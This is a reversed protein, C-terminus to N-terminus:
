RPLDRNSWWLARSLGRLARDVRRGGYMLLGLSVGAGVLHVTTARDSLGYVGRDEHLYLLAMAAAALLGLTSFRTGPTYHNDFEAAYKLASDTPSILPRLSDAGWLGLHLVPASSAGRLVRRNEVRLACTEYSCGNATAPSPGQARSVTAALLFAGGILRLCPM